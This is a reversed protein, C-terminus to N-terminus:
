DQHSLDPTLDPTARAKLAQVRELHRQRSLTLDVIPPPAEGFLGIQPSADKGKGAQWPAHIAHKPWAQMTPLWRKLYDGNADFKESQLVPNFLRYYPAADVGCGAVWQWGMVNNAPDADVLTQRFWHEGARWDIDANKTLWSAVLMRVRNHMWGTEWLQKMGADIIPVGTEGRCWAQYIEHQRANQAALPTYFGRFKPQFPQTESEPFHWLISRAFERWALQRLWPAAAKPTDAANPWLAQLVARSHLEGFHLHPSLESTGPQAPFDRTDTYANLRQTVFRDLKQWAQHEGIRWHQLIKQAWPQACLQKLPEPTDAYAPPCSIQASATVDPRSDDLTEIQDLQQMLAKYFPTFVKYPQGIQNRLAEYPRWNESDFAHMAVGHEASIQHAWSQLTSFPQGLQRTYHVRQIPYDQLLKSWAQRFDGAVQWLDGGQAQLSHKLQQLSQALWVSNADGVTQAPDHFYAVIVAQGTQAAQELASSLAPNHHLRLERQLWVLTIADSSATKAATNRPTM